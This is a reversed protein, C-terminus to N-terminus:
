HGSTLYRLIIQGRHLKAELERQAELIPRLHDHTTQVLEMFSEGQGLKVIIELSAATLASAIRAPNAGDAILENVLKEIRAGHTTM